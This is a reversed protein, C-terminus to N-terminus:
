RLLLQRWRTTFGLARNFEFPTCCKQGITRCVDPIRRKHRRTGPKSTEATVVCSESSSLAHAILFPDRGVQEVEDDTLDGAYGDVLVRQVLRPDVDSPLVLSAKVEPRQIWAFLLDKEEDDPGDKVEEYIELPMKVHGQSSMYALWDWYEPVGDVPYYSNHATILVSADLLYLM